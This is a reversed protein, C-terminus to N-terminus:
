QQSTSQVKGVETEYQKTFMVELEECIICKSFIQKTFGKM